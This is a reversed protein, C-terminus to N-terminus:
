PTQMGRVLSGADDAATVGIQGAVLPNVGIRPVNPAFGAASDLVREAGRMVTNDAGRKAASSAIAIPITAGNSAAIMGAQLAMMLGNGSPSMKGILRQVRQGRSDRLFARMQDVQADSFFRAKKPNNIIRTVAQRYLNAVNGGSGTSEAQDRARQFADDLLKTQSFQRNAERATSMLESTSSRSDIMGDIEEILDYIQVQDPNKTVRGWLRQRIKDLQSLTTEQGERRTITTIAADVATDEGPVYGVDADTINKVRQSLATMEDGDFVEGAQEVASYARSKIERLLGVSPRKEAREVLRRFGKGISNAAVPIAGGFFGGVLAGTGAELARDGLGGEGEAAGYVGGAGAGVLAARGIRGANSAASAAFKAAGLGPAVLAGGLEAGYYAAPNEQRLQEEQNRYFEVGTGPARRGIAEDFAGAAEDGVVGLTLSEGGKNLAAALQEGASMVGNDLGVVNDIIREGVRPQQPLRNEVGGGSITQNRVQPNQTLASLEAFQSADAFGPQTAVQAQAQRQRALARLRLEEATAM